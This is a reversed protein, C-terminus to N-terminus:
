NCDTKGPDFIKFSYGVAKKSAEIASIMTCVITRGQSITNTLLNSMVQNTEAIFAASNSLESKQKKNLTVRKDNQLDPSFLPDDIRIKACSLYAYEALQDTDRQTFPYPHVAIVCRM